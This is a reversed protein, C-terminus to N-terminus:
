RSVRWNLRIQGPTVSGSTWNCVEFNVNASTPYANITLGGTTAPTFGTLSGIAANPSFSIVDTAAVNAASITLTACSATSISGLNNISGTSTAATTGTAITQVVAAGAVPSSPQVLNAASCFESGTGIAVGWGGGSCTDSSAHLLVQSTTPTLNTAASETAGFCGTATGCAAPATGNSISGTAVIAAANLTGTFTPSATLALVTGTGSTTYSTALWAACPTGTCGPIGPTAPWTMSGGAGVATWTNLTACQNLGVTATTKFYLQGVSCTAPFSPGMDPLNGITPTNQASAIGATLAILLFTTWLWQKTM